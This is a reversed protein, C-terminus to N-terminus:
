TGHGYTEFTRCGAGSMELWVKYENAESPQFFVNVGDFYKRRSYGHAGKEFEEWSVDSMGLWAMVDGVSHAKSTVSLYDILLKNAM